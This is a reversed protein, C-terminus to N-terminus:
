RKGGTIVGALNSLEVSVIKNECDSFEWGSKLYNDMLKNANADNDKGSFFEKESKLFKGYDCKAILLEEYWAPHEGLTLVEEDSLWYIDNSSTRNMKDKLAQPVGNDDLLSNVIKTLEGQQTRAAEPNLGAFYKPDFYARHIGLLSAPWAYRTSGSLYLFFCSSACKGDKVLITPYMLRLLGAIKLAELLSGGNSSLHIFRHSKYKELNKQVFLRLKQYDGPNIDGSMQIFYDESTSPTAPTTVWSFDMASVPFVFLPLILLLFILGGFSNLNVVFKLYRM